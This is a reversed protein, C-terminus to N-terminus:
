PQWRVVGAVKMHTLLKKDLTALSAGNDLATRLYVADYGGCGFQDADSFLEVTSHLDLSTKFPIEAMVEFFEMVRARKVDGARMRRVLRAAVEHNALHPILLEIREVDAQYFLERAYKKHEVPDNLVPALVRQCRGGCSECAIGTVIAAFRPLSAVLM